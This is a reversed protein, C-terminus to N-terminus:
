SFFIDAKNIVKLHSNLALLKTIVYALAQSDSQTRPLNQIVSSAMKRLHCHSSRRIAKSVVIKFSRHAKKMRDERDRLVVSPSLSQKELITKYWAPGWITMGEWEVGPSRARGKWPHLQFFCVTKGPGAM